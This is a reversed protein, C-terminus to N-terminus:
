ITLKIESPQDREIRMRAPSTSRGGNGDGLRLALDCDTAPPLDAQRPSRVPCVDCDAEPLIASSSQTDSKCGPGDRRPRTDAIFRSMGCTLASAGMVSGFPKGFCIMSLWFSSALIHDSETSSSVLSSAAVISQDWYEMGAM